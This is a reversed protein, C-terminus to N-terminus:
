RRNTRKRFRLRNTRGSAPRVRSRARACAGADPCAWGRGGCREPLGFSTPHGTERVNQPTPISSLTNFINTPSAPNSGAVGATHLCHEGESSIARRGVSQLRDSRRGGSTAQDLSYRNQHLHPPRSSAAPPCTEDISAARGPFGPVSEPKPTFVLRARHLRSFGHEGCRRPMRGPARAVFGPSNNRGPTGATSGTRPRADGSLSLIPRRM